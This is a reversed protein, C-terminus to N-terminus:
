RASVSVEAPGFHSTVVSFSAAPQVERFHITPAPDEMPSWRCRASRLLLGFVKVGRLRHSRIWRISTAQQRPGVTFGGGADNEAGPSLPSASSIHTEEQASARTGPRWRRPCGSVANRRAPYCVRRLRWAPAAEAVILSHCARPSGARARSSAAPCRATTGQLLALPPTSRLHLHHHSPTFSWM